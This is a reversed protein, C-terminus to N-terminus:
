RRASLRRPPESRVLDRARIAEDVWTRPPAVRTVLYRRYRERAEGASAFVHGAAELPGRPLSQPGALLADPVLALVRAIAEETVQPALAADAATLDGSHGLLVHQRVLPFSTRTRTEDVAPWDHHAYLAAGHDILWPRRQWVLINPNRHTRDPNTVLADLWVVRAALDDSVLAGAATGDYNFAGDLYRLGVNV